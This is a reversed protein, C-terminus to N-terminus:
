VNENPITAYITCRNFREDFEVRTIPEDLSLDSWGDYDIIPNKDFLEAIWAHASQKRFAYDWGIRYAETSPKTQILDGTIDNRAVM